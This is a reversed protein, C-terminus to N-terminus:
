FYNPKLNLGTTEELGFMLNMNQVATGVAGKLLNDIACAIYLMDGSKQIQLLANNTNVVQKLDIAQNTVYVFPASSYYSKYIDLVVQEELECKFYMSSYIGRSFPGRIPVFHIDVEQEQLSQISEKIEALHQHEFVKYASVNNTRWSFHSTETLSKGAGTSGTIAQIHVESPLLKENAIPILSLQIATAFCGPNAIATASTVDNLEPMGYTFDHGNFKSNHGLRFDNSLDIVTTDSNLQHDNLFSKSHGHGLCLFLVDLDDAIEDTMTLEEYAYLDPHLDAIAKGAQSHSYISKLEVSPHNVLLRILEGATYGSGGAIGVKIM